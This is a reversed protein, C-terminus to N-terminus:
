HTSLYWTCRKKREVCGLEPTNKDSIYWGFWPCAVWLSEDNCKIISIEHVKENSCIRKRVGVVKLKSIKTKKGFELPITKTETM